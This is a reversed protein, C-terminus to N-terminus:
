QRGIESEEYVLNFYYYRYISKYPKNEKYELLLKNNILQLDILLHINSINKCM